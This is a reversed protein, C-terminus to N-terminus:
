PVLLPKLRAELMEETLMGLHSFAPQGDKRFVVTYPLAANQNGLERMLEMGASGGMLLPYSVPFQLAFEKIASPSDIGLGIFQVDKGGLSNQLKSFAPMEQRCPPCWTAWFNLVVVKGKFNNLTRSQNSLDAFQTDFLKRLLSAEVQPAGSKTVDWLRYGTYSAAFAALLGVVLNARKSANLNPLNM